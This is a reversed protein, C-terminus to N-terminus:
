AGESFKRESERMIRRAVTADFPTFGDEKLPQGCFGSDKYRTYDVGCHMCVYGKANFRGGPCREIPMMGFALAALDTLDRNRTPMVYPNTDTQTDATDPNDTGTTNNKTARM